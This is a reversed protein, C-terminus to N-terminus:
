AATRKVEENKQCITDSWEIIGDNRSRTTIVDELPLNVIFIPCETRSPPSTRQESVDRVLWIPVRRLIKSSRHAIKQVERFFFTVCIISLYNALFGSVLFYSSDQVNKFMVQLSSMCSVSQQKWIGTLSHFQLCRFRGFSQFGTKVSLERVWLPLLAVYRM